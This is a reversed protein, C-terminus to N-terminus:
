QRRSERSSAIGGDDYGSHASMSVTFRSMTGTIGQENQKTRTWNYSLNGIPAAPSISQERLTNDNNSARTESVGNHYTTLKVVGERLVL